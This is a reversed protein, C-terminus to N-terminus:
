IRPSTFKPIISVIHFVHADLHPPVENRTEKQTEVSQKQCRQGSNSIRQVQLQLTSRPTTQFLGHPLSPIGERLDEDCHMGNQYDHWGSEVVKDVKWNREAQISDLFSGLFNSQFALLDFFLQFLLLHLPFDFPLLFNFLLFVVTRLGLLFTIWIILLLQTSILLNLYILISLSHNFFFPMIVFFHPLIVM